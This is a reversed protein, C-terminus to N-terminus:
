AVDRQALEPEAAFTKYWTRRETEVELAAHFFSEIRRLSALVKELKDQQRPTLEGLEGELLVQCLGKAAVFDFHVESNIIRIVDQPTSSVFFAKLVHEDVQQM